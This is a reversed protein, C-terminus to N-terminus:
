QHNAKQQNLHGNNSKENLRDRNLTAYRAVARFTCALSRWSLLSSNKKNTTRTTKKTSRVREGSVFFISCVLACLMIYLIQVIERTLKKPTKPTDGLWASLPLETM